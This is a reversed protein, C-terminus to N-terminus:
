KYVPVEPARVALGVLLHYLILVLARPYSRGDRLLYYDGRSYPFSGDPQQLSHLRSYTRQALEEYGGFGLRGASAFAAGLAGMHYTVKCHRNHCDFLVRGDPLVGSRLFRLCSNVIAPVGSDRTIEWYRMLDMCQFANYQYCQFHEWCKVGTASGKVAYPFEGNPKQARAMFNVLGGCRHLYAREGTSNALEALFRLVFASNNPVRATRVNSFYKVSVEDGIQEFGLQGNMFEYWRLVASLFGEHGTQRYTELLGLSIWTGETAAIRGRWEPNPYDWAGDARQRNIAHEACRLAIDRFREEGTKAFLEWNALTWYGQTQLYYYVDRWPLASCYSKVFRWIRLNFRVGPDPGELGRGNWHTRTLHDHLRLAAQLNDQMAKTRRCAQRRLRAGAKATVEQDPPILRRRKAARGARM